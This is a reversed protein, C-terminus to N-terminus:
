FGHSVRKKFLSREPIVKWLLVPMSVIIAIHYMSEKSKCAFRSVSIMRM